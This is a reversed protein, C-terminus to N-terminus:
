FGNIRRPTSYNTTNANGIGLSGWYNRGWAYTENNATRALTGDGSSGQSVHVVDVLGFVQVPSTRNRTTGDGLGGYENYGTCWLTRNQRILCTRHRGPMVLAIADNVQLMQTPASRHAGAGIGLEGLRNYGWCWITGDGKRACSHSHSARLEIFGTDNIVRQPSSRQTTTGDGLEGYTNAGWCWSTGDGKLACGHYQGLDISTVDTLGVVQVPSNHYDRTSGNGLQGNAGRGWCAITRNSRLACAFNLGGAIAIADSLGYVRVPRNRQITTRDGLQGYNNRGWCWVQGNSKLACHHRGGGSIQLVDTLDAVRTPISRHTTTGDGVTGFYNHGMCYAFGSRVMCNVTDGSSLINSNPRCANSCNDGDNQNGDDCAEVGAQIQGDGCSAATCNNLCGDTQVQNADDCAEVGVHVVGDGCAALSCDNRCADTEVENGDDCAEVGARVQGDGCIALACTNICDDTQVRNGDDCAEYGVRGPGIDDRLM